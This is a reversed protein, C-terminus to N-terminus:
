RPPAALERADLYGDNNLDQRDFTAALARRHGELTPVRRSRTGAPLENASLKGDGDRDMQQFGRSLYDQYEALAIRADGDRDMYALYAAVTRPLPQASAAAAALLLAAAYKVEPKRRCWRM